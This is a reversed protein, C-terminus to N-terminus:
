YVIANSKMRIYVNAGHHKPLVNNAHADGFSKEGYVIDGGGIAVAHDTLSIWPDELNGERRYWKVTHPNANM